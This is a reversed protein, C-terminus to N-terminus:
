TTDFRELPLAALAASMQFPDATPAAAPAPAPAPAVAVVAPAPLPAVGGAVPVQIPDGAAVVRIGSGTVREAALWQTALVLLYNHRDAPSMDRLREAVPHFMPVHGRVELSSRSM